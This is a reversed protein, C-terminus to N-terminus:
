LKLIQSYKAGKLTLYCISDSIEKSNFSFFFREIWVSGITKIINIIYFTEKWHFHVVKMVRASIYVHKCYIWQIANAVLWQSRAAFTPFIPLNKILFHKTKISIILIKIHYKACFSKLTHLYRIHIKNRHKLLINQSVLLHVCVIFFWFQNNINTQSYFRVCFGIMGCNDIGYLVM